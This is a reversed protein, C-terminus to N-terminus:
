ITMQSQPTLINGFAMMNAKESLPTNRKETTTTTTTTLRAFTGYPTNWKETNTNTSTRSTKTECTHHSILVRVLV